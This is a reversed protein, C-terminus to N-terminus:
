PLFNSSSLRRDSATSGLLLHWTAFKTSIMTDGNGRKGLGWFWGLEKAECTLFALFTNCVATHLAGWANRCRSLAKWFREPM